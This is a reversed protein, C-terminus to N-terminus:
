SGPGSLLTNLHIDEFLNLLRPNKEKKGKERDKEKEKTRGELRRDMREKEKKNIKM